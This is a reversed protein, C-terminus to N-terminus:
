LFRCRASIDRTLNTGGGSAAKGWPSPTEAFGLRILSFFGTTTLFGRQITFHFSKGNLPAM